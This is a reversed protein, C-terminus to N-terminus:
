SNKRKTTLIIESLLVVIVSAVLSILPNWPWSFKYIPTWNLFEFPPKTFLALTLMGCITGVWLSFSSTKSRFFAFLFLSLLPGTFLSTFYLAKKLLSTSEMSACLLATVTGLVGWILIWIKLQNLSPKKNKGLLDVVTTNSLATIGSDLSSMAAAYIAAVILGKIGSPLEHLIFHPFVMDGAIGAPLKDANVHYFSFLGVGILFFLLSIGIGFIASLWSSYDAEKNTKTSFYRQIFQQDCGRIAIEFVAYVLGASLLTRAQGPDMSHSFIKTRGAADAIAWAGDVSTFLWILIFIGGGGLVVFQMVDTWIVARIGGAWTYAVALIATFLISWYIDVGMLSSLVISPGYLLVGTRLWLHFIYLISALIRISRSFKLELLQYGSLLDLGRLRPIFVKSVVIIAIFVGIHTMMYSMDNLYADAPNALFATASVSTAILSIGVAYWPVTGGGHLFDKVSKNSKSFYAGLGATGLLYAILVVWDLVGFM